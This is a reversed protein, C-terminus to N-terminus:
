ATLIDINAKIWGSDPDNGKMDLGAMFEWYVERSDDLSTAQSSEPLIIEKLFSYEKGGEFTGGEAVIIKSEFIVNENEEIEKGDENEVEEKIKEVCQINLYVSKVEVANEGIKVTVNVILPTGLFGGPVNLEVKAAGGSIFNGMKKLKDFIGM